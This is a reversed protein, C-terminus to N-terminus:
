LLASGFLIVLAFRISFISGKNSLNLGFSAHRRDLLFPQYQERSASSSSIIDYSYGCRSNKACKDRSVYVILIMREVFSLTQVTNGM